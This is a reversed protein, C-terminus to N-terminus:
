GSDVTSPKLVTECAGISMAHDPWNRCQRPEEQAEDDDVARAELRPDLRRSVWM